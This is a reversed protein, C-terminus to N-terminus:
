IVMTSENKTAGAKMKRKKSSHGYKKWKPKWSKSEYSVLIENGRPIKKLAYLSGDEDFEANVRKLADNRQCGGTNYTPDNVYHLGMFLPVHQGRMREDEVYKKWQAACLEESLPKGEGMTLKEKQIYKRWEDKSWNSKADPPHSQQQLVSKSVLLKMCSKNDRIWMCREPDVNPPSRNTCEIACAGEPTTYEEGVDEGVFFGILSGRPFERCAFLGLEHVNVNSNQISLYDRWGKTSNLQLIFESGGCFFPPPEDLKEPMKELLDVVEDADFNSENLRALGMRKVSQNPEKEKFDSRLQFVWKYCVRDLEKFQEADTRLLGLKGLVEVFIRQEKPVIISGNDQRLLKNRFNTEDQYSFKWLQIADETLAGNEKREWKPMSESM